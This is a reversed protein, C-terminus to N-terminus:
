KKFGMRRKVELMNKNTTLQELVMFAVDLATEPSSSTIINEDQVIRKNELIVGMEKLQQRRQSGGFTYTTGRRGTLVGSKGISLAAVCISAILKGKRDFDRIVTLFQEDFADTYFDAEEFGGPIVLADYDDLCIESLQFMPICQYGWTCSLKPHLGVSDLKTTGDGEFLNWGFVDTFVSAELSEFGNALLLLVKKM